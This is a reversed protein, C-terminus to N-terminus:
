TIFFESLLKNYIENKNENYFKEGNLTISEIILKNNNNNIYVNCIFQTFSVIFCQANYSNNNNDILIINGNSQISKIDLCIM